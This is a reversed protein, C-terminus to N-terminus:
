RGKCCRSINSKSINMIKAAETCSPFQRIIKMTDKDLAYVKKNCRLRREASIKEYHEKSLKKGKNWAGHELIYNKFNNRNKESCKKGRNANGIKIKTEELTLETFLIKHKINEWGYKLIANYMKTQKKYSTGNRWRRTYPIASTIGVYYKKNPFIHLYVVYKKAKEIKENM